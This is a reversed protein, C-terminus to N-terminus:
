EAKASERAGAGPVYAGVAKLAEAAESRFLADTPNELARASAAIAEVMYELDSITVNCFDFGIERRREMSAALRKLVTYGVLERM